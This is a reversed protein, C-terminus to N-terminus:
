NFLKIAPSLLDEKENPIELGSIKNIIDFYCQCLTSRLKTAESIISSLLDTLALEQTKNIVPYTLASSLWLDLRQLLLGESSRDEAGLFCTFQSKKMKIGAMLIKTDIVIQPDLDKLGLLNDLAAGM